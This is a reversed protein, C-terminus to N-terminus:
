FLLTGDAQECRLGMDEDYLSEDALVSIDTGLPRLVGQSALKEYNKRYVPVTYPGLQRLTQRNGNESYLEEILHQNELCPIIVSCQNDDILKFAIAVEEFPMPVDNITKLIKQKDLQEAGKLTYLLIEFYRRIAEPTSITGLEKQVFKTAEINKLIYAPQKENTSFYHVISDEKNRKGERNCRGAAQIISDIGAIERWVEPFDVDVGAEILSTSFVRCPKGEALLSRIMHLKQKRCKPTLNTTLCFVNGYQGLFSQYLQEAMYKTNLICLFSQSSQLKSGLKEAEIVGEYRYTVREFLQQPFLESPCLANINHGSLMDPKQFIPHLAPQTATSLVCSCHFNKVLQSIVAACPYLVDCPLTQAEDFIVVSKCISHLKRCHSSRNSFFSEFFQVATTVIVPADWNEAMQRMQCNTREQEADEANGLFFDANAYHALVNDAGLVSSFVEATQEIISTYPIVYIVRPMHNFIAHKLAFALSALTKGAGTPATLEFLGPECDAKKYLTEYFQTRIKSLKSQSQDFNSVHQQLLSLLTHLSSHPTQREAGQMYAETDLYDADTLCSFLMHSYFFCDLNNKVWGPLSIESLLLPSLDKQWASYDAIDKGAKANLRGMLTGDGYKSFKSGYNLLGSHHGAICAAICLDRPYIRKAEIAGATSHDVRISEGKIRRQFKASYKGCDHLLGAMEANTSANFADAFRKCREATGASHQYVTQIDSDSLMHAIYADKEPM